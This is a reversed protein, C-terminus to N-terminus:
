GLLSVTSFSPLGGSGRAVASAQDGMSYPNLGAFIDLRSVLDYIPNAAVNPRSLRICADFIRSGDSDRGNQRIARLFATNAWPFAELTLNLLKRDSFNVLTVVKAWVLSPSGVVWLVVHRGPAWGAESAMDTLTFQIRIPHWLPYVLTVERLHTRRDDGAANIAALAACAANSIRGLKRKSGTPDRHFNDFRKPALDRLYVRDGEKISLPSLHTRDHQAKFKIRQRENFSMASRWAAHLTTVLNQVYFGSDDAPIHNELDHQILLDINFVPDRGFM